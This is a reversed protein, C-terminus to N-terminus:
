VPINVTAILKVDISWNLPAAIGTVQIAANGGSSVVNVDAGSMGSDAYTTIIDSPSLITLTGSVKKYGYSRRIIKINGSGNTVTVAVELQGATNDAISEVSANVPTANNTNYLIRKGNASYILSDVHKKNLVSSDTIEATRWAGTYRLLQNGTVHIFGNTMVTDPEAVWQGNRYRLIDLENANPLAAGSGEDTFRVGRWTGSRRIMLRLSDTNYYMLGNAPSSISAAQVSTLRPILVGRENSSVDLAATANPADTGIGVRGAFFNRATAGQQYIGYANTPLNDIDIARYPTNTAM